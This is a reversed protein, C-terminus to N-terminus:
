HVRDFGGCMGSLVALDILMSLRFDGHKPPFRSGEGVRLSEEVRLISTALEM